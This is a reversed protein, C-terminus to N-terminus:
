HNIDGVILLDIRRLGSYYYFVRGPNSAESTNKKQKAGSPATRHLSVGDVRWRPCSFPASAAFECGGTGSCTACPVVTETRRVPPSGSGGGGTARLDSPAGAGGFLPSFNERLVRPWGRWFPPASRAVDALRVGRHLGFGGPCNLSIGLEM